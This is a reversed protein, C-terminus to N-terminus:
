AEANRGPSSRHQGQAESGIGARFPPGLRQRIPRGRSVEIIAFRLGGAAKRKEEDEKRRIAAETEQVVRRDAGKLASYYGT